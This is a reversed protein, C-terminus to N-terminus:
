SCVVSALSGSLRLEGGLGCLEIAHLIRPDGVVTLTTRAATERLLEVAAADIGTVDLLDVILVGAPVRGLEAAITAVADSDFEGSLAVVFTEEGVSATRMEM